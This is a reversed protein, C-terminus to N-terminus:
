DYVILEQIQDYKYMKGSSLQYELSSSVFYFKERGLIMFNQSYDEQQVKTVYHPTDGVLCGLANIM